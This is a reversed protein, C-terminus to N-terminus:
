LLLPVRVAQSFHNPNIEAYNLITKNTVRDVVATTANIDLTQPDVHGYETQICSTHPDIKGSLTMQRTVGRRSVIMNYVYITKNFINQVSGTIADIEDVEHPRGQADKRTIVVIKILVLKGSKPDIKCVKTYIKGSKYDFKSTAYLPENAGLEEGTATYVQGFIPDVKTTNLENSTINVIDYTEPILYGHLTIILGSESDVHSSTYITNGTVSDTKEPVWIQNSKPDVIIVKPEISSITTKRTLPNYSYTILPSVIRYWLRQRLERDPNIENERSKKEIIEGNILDIKVEKTEVKGTEQNKFTITSTTLDFTGHNKDINCNEKNLYLVTEGVSAPTSECHVCSCKTYNSIGETLVGQSTSVLPSQTKFLTLQLDVDFIKM